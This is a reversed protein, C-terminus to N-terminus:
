QKKRVTFARCKWIQTAQEKKAYFFAIKERLHSGQGYMIQENHKAGCIHSTNSVLYVHHSASQELTVATHFKSSVTKSYPISFCVTEVSCWLYYTLKHTHTHIQRDTMM